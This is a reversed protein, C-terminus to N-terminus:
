TDQILRILAWEFTLVRSASEREDCLTVQLCVDDVVSEDLRVLAM